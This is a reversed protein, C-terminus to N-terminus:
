DRKEPKYVKYTGRPISLSNWNLGKKMRAIYVIQGIHNSYHSIQRLIADVVSLKQGRITIDNTLDGPKLQNLTQFLCNWGKEWEQFLQERQFIEPQTFEGERDRSPKEGDSTLFESWRSLMNGYIHQMIIAISNAEPDPRWQLDEDSIQAIAREALEKMNRFRFIINELFINELNEKGM